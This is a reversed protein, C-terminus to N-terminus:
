ATGGSTPTGAGSIGAPAGEGGQQQQRQQAMRQMQRRFLDAFDIPQILLPPFGGDRVANSVIARAFPFMQRPAEILLLPAQHERPTDGPLEVVGAYALEVIFAQQDGQTADARLNIVVEFRSEGELQNPRVDVSVKVQPPQSNPGVTSPANPNEFSLDKIYQQSIQIQPLQQRQQGQAGAAAAAGGAPPQKADDSM